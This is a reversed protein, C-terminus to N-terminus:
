YRDIFLGFVGVFGWFHDVKAALLTRPVLRVHEHHRQVLRGLRSLFEACGVLCVCPHLNLLTVRHALAGWVQLWWFLVLCGLCHVLMEGEPRDLATIQWRAAVLHFSDVWMSRLSEFISSVLHCGTLRWCVLGLCFFLFYVDWLLLSWDLLYNALYPDLLTTHLMLAVRLAHRQPLFRFLCCPALLVLQEIRWIMCFISVALERLVLFAAKAIALWAYLGALRLLRHYGLRMRLATQCWIPRYLVELSNKLRIMWEKHGSSEILFLLLVQGLPRYLILPSVVQRTWATQYHVRGSRRPWDFIQKGTSRGTLPHLTGRITHRIGFCRDFM